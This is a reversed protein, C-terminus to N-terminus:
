ARYSNWMALMRNRQGTTFRNLCVDDSYDMYNNIPDTGRDRPCSDRSSPCGETASRQRPTDSVEDGNGLCGNGSWHTTAFTHMLGLWHGVEHILTKGQNYDQANGGPVTGSLIFVGDDRPYDTYWIPFSAYGLNGDAYNFFVNLTSSGGVRLRSKLEVDASSGDVAYYWSRNNTRTTRILRFRFGYQSYGNNLVNLQNTLTADSIAGVTGDTIVHFYTDIVITSAQEMRHKNDTMWKNVVLETAKIQKSTLKKSGCRKGSHIFDHRSAYTHNGIVFPPEKEKKRLGRYDHDHSHEFNEFDESDVAEDHHHHHLEHHEHNTDYGVSFPLLTCITMLVFNFFMKM